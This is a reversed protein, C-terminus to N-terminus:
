AVDNEPGSGQQIKPAPSIPQHNKAALSSRTPRMNLIYNFARALYKEPQYLQVIARQWEALIDAEPRDTIFNLGLKMMEAPPPLPKLRGEQELRDWLDTNPLATMINAMVYPLNCAEVIQCIRTDAGPKEGDFGLIFSAVAELGNANIAHIWKEMENAKNHTKGSRTLVEPETTEVGIFVTSFNAETLLDILELDKGLNVSTQTWFYFPEGHEKMWPTLKDLIARAHPKIVSLIIM